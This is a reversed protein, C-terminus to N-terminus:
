GYSAMPIHVEVTKPIAHKITMSHFYSDHLECIVRKLKHSYRPIKVRNCITLWTRRRWHFVCSGGDKSHCLQGPQLDIYEVYHGTWNSLRGMPNYQIINSTSVGKSYLYQKMDSSIFDDAKDTYIIDPMGFISSLNNNPPTRKTYHNFRHVASDYYALEYELRVIVNM